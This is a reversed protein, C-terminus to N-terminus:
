TFVTCSQRGQVICAAAAKRFACRQQFSTGSVEPDCLVDPLFPKLLRYGRTSGYDTVVPATMGEDEADADALGLLSLLV